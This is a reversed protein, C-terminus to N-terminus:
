QDLPLIHKSIIQNTETNLLTKAPEKSSNKIDLIIGFALNKIKENGNINTTIYIEDARTYNLINLEELMEIKKNLQTIISEKNELQKKLKEIEKNKFFDIVKSM